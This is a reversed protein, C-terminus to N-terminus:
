LPITEVRADNVQDLSRCAAAARDALERSTWTDREGNDKTSWYWKLTNYDQIKIGYTTETM